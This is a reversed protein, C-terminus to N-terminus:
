QCIFRTVDRQAPTITYRLPPSTAAFTKGGCHWSNFGYAGTGGSHQWALTKVEASLLDYDVNLHIDGQATVAFSRTYSPLDPQEPTQWQGSFAKDIAARYAIDRSVNLPETLRASDIFGRMLPVSAGIIMGVIAVSIVMEVTMQPSTDWAIARRLKHKM